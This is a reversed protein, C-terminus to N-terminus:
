VVQPLVYSVQLNHLTTTSCNGIQFIPLDCESNSLVACFINYLDYKRPQTKRKANELDTRIIEFQERMINSPYEHMKM